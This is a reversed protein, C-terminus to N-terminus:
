EAGAYITVFSTTTTEEGFRRGIRMGIQSTLLYGQYSVRNTLQLAGILEDYSRQLGSPVPKQLQRFMCYEIGIELTSSRLVPLKSMLILILTNEKREPDAKFIPRELRFENKVKPQVTLDGLRFNYDMKNILGFFIYTDRLNRFKKRQDWIELKLKNIFNLNRIGTYDFGLFTSSIWTDRAALPDPVRQQLGRSGPPQVWQYLNDPIDDKALKFNEFLRLRGLKPFDKDLTFLFYNTLNKRDDTSLEEAQRGVTMRVDPTIHTGVYFNYGRRGRKYPYDPEEDNEFRDIWMNNNMDIGFLFEPRDASYRLFPEEYDPMLNPAYESDNENFDSKFDNNEDWGPFVAADASPQNVRQWDPWRDQDDNDDVFEFLNSLKDGYDIDGKSDCVFATTSYDYDINYLEGFAFWPYVLRSINVYWAKSEDFATHHRKAGVRPYKRYRRNWDMEGYLNFGKLEGLELTVGYIEHATPLGYDLRVLKQNSNDKVNGLARTALLYVPQNERNTQRDSTWEVRYDNALVLDVMVEEILAPDPGTYSPDTLDYTLEIVEDGDAAIYGKRKYGGKILPKFGIQSGRVVQTKGTLRNKGKITIDYSYLAAGAEGDEPSDDSLRIMLKSIPVSNQVTTLAGSRPSGTFSELLTQSQRSNLYNAGIKVFGGIQVTGRMGLFNTNSTREHHVGESTGLEPSSPRSMLVTLAYKDSLFDWQIGNFSPKSFTMPTLTTRIQDGVTLVTHYQGKSDSAILLRDFWTTFRRDKTIKSGARGPQEQRWDYILWGRTVFRGFIDYFYDGELAIDVYRKYFERAYNTYEWQKWGYIRYLEQPVYWKKVAPDLAGFLVGVGTPEFSIEGGPRRGLLSGYDVIQCFGLSTQLTLLVAGLLLNRTYVQVEKILLSCM